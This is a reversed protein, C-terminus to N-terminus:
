VLFLKNLMQTKTSTFIFLITHFLSLADDNVFIFIRRQLINFCAKACFRIIFITPFYFYSNWEESIIQFPHYIETAKEYIPQRFIIDNYLECKLM